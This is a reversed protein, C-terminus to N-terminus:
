KSEELRNLAEEDFDPDFDLETIISPDILEEETEGEDDEEIREIVELYFEPDKGKIHAVDGGM